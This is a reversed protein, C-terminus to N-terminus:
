SGRLGKTLVGNLLSQLFGRPKM